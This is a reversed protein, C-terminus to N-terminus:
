DLEDKLPVILDSLMGHGDPDQTWTFKEKLHAVKDLDAGSVIVSQGLRSLQRAGDALKAEIRKPNIASAYVDFLTVYGDVVKHLLIIFKVLNTYAQQWFPEDSRGFLNNLLSAIGYALAYAELDNHLPNYRFGSDLSIEVYDDARGLRRAIGRLHYCFDGKVELVLASLRRAPDNARYALLQEAYPYICGSTKGSGVAGVIAIGTFLGREPLILWHPATSAVPSTPHHVEGLVLFLDQRGAPPPYPPLHGPGLGRSAKLAFIYGASLAMTILLCPTTFAMAAYGFRLAEFLWPTKIRLLALLMAEGEFPVLRLFVAGVVGGVSVTLVVRHELLGRIM